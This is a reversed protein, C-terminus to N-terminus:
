VTTWQECMNSVGRGSLRVGCKECMVGGVECVKDRPYLSVAFMFEQWVM